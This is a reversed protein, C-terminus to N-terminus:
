LPIYGTRAMVALEVLGLVIGISLYCLLTVLTKPKIAKKFPELPDAGGNRLRESAEHLNKALKDADVEDLFGAPKKPKKKAM